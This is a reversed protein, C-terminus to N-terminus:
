HRRARTEFLKNRTIPYVILATALGVVLVSIAFAVPNWHKRLRVKLATAFGAV